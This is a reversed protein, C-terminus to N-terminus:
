FKFSREGNAPVDNLNVPDRDIAIEAGELSINQESVPIEMRPKNISRTAFGSFLLPSFGENQIENPAVPQERIKLEQQKLKLIRIADNFTPRINPDDSLMNDILRIMADRIPDPDVKDFLDEHCNRLQNACANFDSGWMLNYFERDQYYNEFIESPSLEGLVEALITGVGYVETKENQHCGEECYLNYDGPKTTVQAWLEPPVAGYNGVIENLSKAKSQEIALGLDTITATRTEDDWLIQDTKIDRHLIGADNLKGLSEVISLCMDIEKDLPMKGEQKQAELYKHLPKGLCLDQITFITTKNQELLTATAVLSGALGHMYIEHAVEELAKKAEELNDPIEQVKIACLKGSDLNVGLYVKGYGGEGLINKKYWAIPAGSKGIIVPWNLEPIDESTFVKNHSKNGELMMTKKLELMAQESLINQENFLDDLDLNPHSITREIESNLM